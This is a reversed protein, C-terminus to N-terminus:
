NKEKANLQEDFRRFDDEASIGILKMQADMLERHKQALQKELELERLREELESLQRQLSEGRREGIRFSPFFPRGQFLPVVVQTLAVAGFIVALCFLMVDVLM